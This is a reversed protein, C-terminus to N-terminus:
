IILKEKKIMPKISLVRDYHFTRVARRKLCYATFSAEGLKRIRVRRESCVGDSKMYIIKVTLGQQWYRFLKEKM